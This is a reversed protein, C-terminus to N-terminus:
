ASLKFFSLPASKLIFQNVQSYEESLGVNFSCDALSGTLYLQLIQEAKDKSPSRWDGNGTALTHKSDSEVFSKTRKPKEPVTPPPVPAKSQFYFHLFYALTWLSLFM